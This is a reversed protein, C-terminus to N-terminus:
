PCMQQTDHLQCDPGLIGELRVLLTSLSDNQLMICFLLTRFLLVNTPYLYLDPARRNNIKCDPLRPGPYGETVAAAHGISSEAALHM